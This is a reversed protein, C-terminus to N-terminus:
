TLLPACHGNALRHGQTATRQVQRASYPNMKLCRESHMTLAYRRQRRTEERRQSHEPTEVESTEEENSSTSRVPALNLSARLATAPLGGTLLLVLAVFHLSFNPLRSIMGLEELKILTSIEDSLTLKLREVAAFGKIWM